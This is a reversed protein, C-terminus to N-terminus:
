TANKKRDSEAYETAKASTKYIADKIYSNLCGHPNPLRKQWALTREREHVLQNSILTVGNLVVKWKRGRAVFLRDNTQGL